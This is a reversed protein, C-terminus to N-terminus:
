RNSLLPKATRINEPALSCYLTIFCPTCRDMIFLLRGTPIDYTLYMWGDTCGDVIRCLVLLLLSMDVPKPCIHLIYGFLCHIYM